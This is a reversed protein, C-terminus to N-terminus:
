VNLSHDESDEPDGPLCLGEGKMIVRFDEPLPATFIRGNLYALVGQMKEFRLQYAHLLQRRIRYKRWYAQNGSPDQYKPDGIVPHGLFALHARIQHSKGTILDVKLCTLSGSQDLVQYDTRIYAAGPQKTRFVRSQNGSSDKCIYAEESRDTMLSGDVVCLYYKSLDRERIARNLERVAAPNKGAAMLGSTNRDLRNSIGPTFLDTIGLYSILGDNVCRDKPSSKQSLLGAPKNLLILNEDEYLILSTFWSLDETASPSGDPDKQRAPDPHKGSRFTQITEESLYLKVVDGESLIESGAAKKDNLVINKKRLMKYVFGASSQDLYRFILKDLRGGATQETIRIERM